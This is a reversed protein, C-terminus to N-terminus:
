CCPVIGTSPSRVRHAFGLLVADAAPALFLILEGAGGEADELHVVLSDAVEPFSEVVRSGMAWPHKNPGLIPRYADNYLLVFEPGWFVRMAFRSALMIPVLTRLSSAWAERAGM